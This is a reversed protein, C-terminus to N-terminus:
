ASAFRLLATAEARADRNDWAVVSVLGEATARLKVCILPNDALAPTMDYRCVLVDRYRVEMARIFYPETAQRFRGNVKELGTRVPHTFKVFVPIVEGRRIAPPLRIEPSPFM